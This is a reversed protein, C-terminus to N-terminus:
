ITLKDPAPLSGTGQKPPVVNSGVPGKMYLLDKMSRKNLITLGGFDLNDVAGLGAVALAYVEGPQGHAPDNIMSGALRQDVVCDVFKIHDIGGTSNHQAFNAASGGGFGKVRIFTMGHIGSKMGASSNGDADTGAQLGGVMLRGSYSQGICDQYTLDHIDGKNFLPDATAGAPVGQYVDDGSWIDCNRIIGSGHSVRWGGAGTAAAKDCRIKLGAVDMKEGGGMFYRGGTFWACAFDRFYMNDAWVGFMNGAMGPNAEIKGPGRIDLSKIAQTWDANTILANRTAGSGNWNKVLRAGSDVYIKAGSPPITLSKGMLWDGTLKVAVGKNIAGQLDSGKTLTTYTPTPTTTTGGGTNQVAALKATLDAVQSTLAAIQPQDVASQEQKGATEGAGYQEQGYTTALNKFDDPSTPM